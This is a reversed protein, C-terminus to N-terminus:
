GEEEGKAEVTEAGVASNTSRGEIVDLTADAISSVVSNVDGFAVPGDPDSIADQSVMHQKVQMTESIPQRSATSSGFFKGQKGVCFSEAYRHAFSLVLSTKGIGSQGVVVLPRRGPLHVDAQNVFSSLAWMADDRGVFSGARNAILAKHLTAELALYPMPPPPTPFEVCISEWLDELLM